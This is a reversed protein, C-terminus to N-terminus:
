ASDKIMLVSDKSTKKYTIREDRTERGKYRMGHIEYSTDRGNNRTGQIDDRTGRGKYRTGQIEDRTDRGKYRMGEREDRTCKVKYRKGQIEDRTGRGKYRTGQVEDRTSTTDRGKYRTGQVEDRTGRGKYRTGQIDDRACRGQIEEMTVMPNCLSTTKSEDIKAPWYRGRILAGIRPSPPNSPRVWHTCSHVDRSMSGWFSQLDVKMNLRHKYSMGSYRTRDDKGMADRGECVM